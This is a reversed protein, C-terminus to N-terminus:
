AVEKKENKIAEFLEKGVEDLRNKVKHTLDCLLVFAWEYTEPANNGNYIAEFLASQLSHIKETENQLNELENAIKKVTMM